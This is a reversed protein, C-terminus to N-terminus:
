DVGGNTCLLDVRIGGPSHRSEGHHCPPTGRPRGRGGHERLAPTRRSPGPASAGARRPVLPGYPAPRESRTRPPAPAPDSLPPHNIDGAMIGYGGFRHMRPAILTSAEQAAAGAHSPPLHVSAVALPIHGTDFVGVGFGRSTKTSDMCEWQTLTLVEPRYMLLTGGIQPERSLPPFWGAVHMGLERQARMLQAYNRDRWGHIEQLCLLDPSTALIAERTSKWRDPDPQGNSTQCGGHQLNFVTVTISTDTM